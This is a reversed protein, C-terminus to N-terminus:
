QYKQRASLMYDVVQDPALQNRVLVAGTAVDMELPVGEPSYMVPPRLSLSLRQSELLEPALNASSDLAATMSFGSRFLEPFLRAKVVFSGAENLKVYSRLDEVFSFSEGPEVAIERFFVQQSKTRKLVLAEAQELPRNTTTRVELDISFAREDALKFRYTSPSNNTITVQIYVPDPSVLPNGSTEAVYYIRRDFFRISFDIGNEAAGLPLLAGFLALLVIWVVKSNKMRTEKTDFNAPFMGEFSGV